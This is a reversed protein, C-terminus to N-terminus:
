KTNVKRNRVLQVPENSGDAYEIIFYKKSEDRIINIDKIGLLELSDWIANHIAKSKTEDYAITITQCRFVITAKKM